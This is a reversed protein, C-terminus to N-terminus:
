QAPVNQLLLQQYVHTGANQLIEPAAPPIYKGLAVPLPIYEDVAIEPTAPLIEPPAPPIYRNPPFMKCFSDGVHVHMGAKKPHPPCSKPRLPRLYIDLAAPSPIYKDLANGPIEPAAPLIEPPAPPIYGNPLFMKCFSNGVHVHMGAKKPCPPCSKLRPPRFIDAKKPHPPCSKLRPPRIYRDLTAPLPIYKDLANGPIEPAAPLIEPPAPPIYKNPPLM